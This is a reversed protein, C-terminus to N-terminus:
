MSPQTCACYFVSSAIADKAARQREVGRVRLRVVIKAAREFRGAIQGGRRLAITLCDPQIRVHGVRMVVEAIGAPLHPIRLLRDLMDLACKGALGRVRVPAGVEAAELVLLQL